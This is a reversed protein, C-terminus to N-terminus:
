RGGNCFIRVTTSCMRFREFKIPTESVRDPDNFRFIWVSPTASSVAQLPNAFGWLWHVDMTKSRYPHKCHYHCSFDNLHWHPPLSGLGETKDCSLTPSSNIATGKSGRRRPATWQPNTEKRDKVSDDTLRWSSVFYLWQKVNEAMHSFWQRM